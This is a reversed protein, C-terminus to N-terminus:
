VEGESTDKPANGAAIDAETIPSVKLKQIEPMIELKLHDSKYIRVGKENPAVMKHILERNSEAIALMNDYAVTEKQSWKSRTCKTDQYAEMADDLDPISPPETGPIYTQKPRPQAAPEETPSKAGTDPANKAKKRKSM